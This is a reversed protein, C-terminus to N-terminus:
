SMWGDVSGSPGGFQDEDEEVPLAAVAALAAPHHTLALADGDDPSALGRAKMDDKAELVLEDRNNHEYGPGTLDQELQPDSDIAGRSLWDRTKGWIFARMNAFKRDPSKGGFQCEVVNKHNLQHLRDVIPGGIGTGDVVMVSVRLPKKETGFNRGLIDAALTVLRMSDRAEEGPVRIPPISRADAGRRFRFVCVDMGGRAVDLGCILPDDPFCSPERRQADQVLKTSIYQMDGAAPPLGLVRVRFFDSDEGKDAAWQAILGKNGFKATRADVIVSFYRHNDSGFIARYFAGTSKTPNGFLFQMDEGSTLGGEEVEHIIDEISSDEDNCYFSTSGKAHQGHFAESNDARCSQPTCFWTAEHGIRYMRETNIVFWRSTRCMELWKRVGAWTKTSLQKMTNATITGQAHPRTSMIWIVIWALLATGGVGQGKSVAGRIPVVPGKGDFGREGVEKGLRDLFDAQWVDPGDDHELQGPEEWPFMAYVFGLPDAYYEAVEAHLLTDYDQPDIPVLSASPAMQRSEVGAAM